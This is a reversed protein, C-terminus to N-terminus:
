RTRRGKACRPAISPSPRARSSRRPSNASSWPAAPAGWRRAARRIAPSRPSRRPWLRRCRAAAGAPRDRRPARDRPLRACRHRRDPPRLRGGRAAGEARGRWLDLAAGRDGRPAVGRACGRGPRAMRHGARRRARWADRRDALRSQRSRDPRRAATRGGPRAGRLLRIAAVADLVGKSRLMRAVLAVTVTAADPMPCRRSIAIDVGSGRILAIRRRAIGLRVLAAGDEPNQVVVWGRDGVLRSACRSVSRRGACGRPLARPRSAPASGWSRISRGGPAEGLASLRAAPRHRRVAGAEARRSPRHRAARRSLAPRDRRDGPRRRAARRRAAALGLPRLAFGEDRIREGHARVRTAVVVEFGADRAARAVPLRHSCFYWDETVLFLLKPRRAAGPRAAAPPLSPPETSVSPGRRSRQLTPDAAPMERICKGRSRTAVIPAASRPSPPPKARMRTVPAAPKMPRASHRPRTARPWATSPSIGAGPLVSRRADFKARDAVDARLGVPRPMEVADLDDDMEGIAGVARARLRGATSRPRPRRPVPARRPWPRRAGAQDM